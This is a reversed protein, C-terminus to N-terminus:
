VYMCIYMCVRYLQTHSLYLEDSSLKNNTTTDLRSTMFAHILMEANSMSLMPRLKSINILHFFTTKCISSVHSNFSLNSDFLVGLNRVSSSPHIGNRQRVGKGETKGRARTGRFRTALALPSFM